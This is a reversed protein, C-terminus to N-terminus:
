SCINLYPVIDIAQPLPVFSVIIINHNYVRTCETLFVISLRRGWVTVGECFWLLPFYTLYCCFACAVSDFHNLIYTWMWLDPEVGIHSLLDYITIWFKVPFFFFSVLPRSVHFFTLGVASCVPNSLHNPVAVATM